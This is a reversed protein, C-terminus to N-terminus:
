CPRRVTLSSSSVVSAVATPARAHCLRLRREITDRDDHHTRNPVGNMDQWYDIRDLPIPRRRMDRPDQLRTRRGEDSPMRGDVVDHQEISCLSKLPKEVDPTLHHGSQEVDDDIQLDIELGSHDRAEGSCWDLQAEVPRTRPVEIPQERVPLNGSVRFALVN